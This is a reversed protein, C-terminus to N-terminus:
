LKHMTPLHKEYTAYYSFGCSKLLEAAEDFNAAIDEPKHADAGVTIIEGGLERYRTLIEACPNTKGYSSRLGSTNCEIAKEQQLITKLIEDILDKCDMYSFRPADAPLYRAIYDLHGYVDYGIYTKVNELMEEFYARLYVAPETGEWSSPYYPDKGMCLHSSAIIFDFEHAKSLIINKRLCSKQLGIEIGFFIGIKDAYREKVRLLEYLYSDVNLLF